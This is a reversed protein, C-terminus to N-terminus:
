WSVSSTYASLVKYAWAATLRSSPFRARSQGSTVKVMAWYAGARASIHPHLTGTGLGADVMKPPRSVSAAKVWMREASSRRSGRLGGM